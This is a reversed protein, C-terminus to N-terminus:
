PKHGLPNLLQKVHKVPLEIKGTAVRIQSGDFDGAHCWWLKLSPELQLIGVYVNCSETKSHFGSIQFFEQKCTILWFTITWDSELIRQDDLDKADNEKIKVHFYGCLFPQM